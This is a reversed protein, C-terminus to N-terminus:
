SNYAPPQQPVGASSVYFGAPLQSKQQVETCSPQDMFGGQPLYPGNQYPQAQPPLANGHFGPNYVPPAITVNLPPQAVMYTAPYQMQYSTSRMAAMQVSRDQDRRKNKYRRNQFWIKVQTPTLGIQAAFQEREASSVYKQSNFKSELAQVQQQSFLNRPKRKTKKRKPQQEEAPDENTKRKKDSEQKAQSVSKNTDQEASHLQEQNDFFKQEGNQNLNNLKTKAENPRKSAQTGTKNMQKNSTLSSQLLNQDNEATLCYSSPYSCIPQNVSHHDPNYFGTEQQMMPPGNVVTNHSYANMSSYNLPMFKEYSANEAYSSTKAETLNNSAVSLDTYSLPESDNAQQPAFYSQSHIYAGPDMNLNQYDVQGQHDLLGTALKEDGSGYSSLSQYDTAVAVSGGAIKPEGEDSSDLHFHHEQPPHNQNFSSGNCPSRNMLFINPSNSADSGGSHYRSTHLEPSQENASSPIVHYQPNPTSLM